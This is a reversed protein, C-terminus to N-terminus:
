RIKKFTEELEVEMWPTGDSDIKPIGNEKIPQPKGIIKFFGEELLVELQPQNNPHQSAVLNTGWDSFDDVDVGNKPKIKLICKVKEGPLRTATKSIFELAVSKNKTTSVFGYLPVETLSGNFLENFESLSYTRGRFVNETYLRSTKRLEELCSIIATFAEQSYEDFILQGSKRMPVNLFNGNATYRHLAAVQIDTSAGLSHILKNTQKLEQIILISERIDSFRRLDNYTNGAKVVRELYDMVEDVQKSTNADNIHEVLKGKNSTYGKLLDKVESKDLPIFPKENVLSYYAPSFIKSNTLIRAGGWAAVILNFKDIWKKSESNAPLGNASLNALAGLVQAGEYLALGMKGVRYAKWVLGPGSAVTLVDVVVASVRLADDNFTQDSAYKLFIAPAITISAHSAAESISALSSRNVITIPTFPSLTFTLPITWHAVHTIPGGMDGPLVETTQYDVVQRSITVSGNDNISVSYKHTGIPASQLLYSDDYFFVSKFQETENEPFYHKVVDGKEKFKICLVKNLKKYDNFNIVQYIKALLSKTNCNNAPATLADFFAITNADSIELNITEFLTVIADHTAWGNVIALIRLLRIRESNSIFNLACVNSMDNVYDTIQAPTTFKNTQSDTNATSNAYGRLEKARQILMAVKDQYLQLPTRTQPTVNNNVSQLHKTLDFDDILRELSYCQSIIKPCATILNAVTIASPIYDRDCIQLEELFRISASSYKSTLEAASLVVSTETLTNFQLPLTEMFTGSGTHVTTPWTVTPSVQVKNAKFIMSGNVVCAYVVVVKNQQQLKQSLTDVLANTCSSGEVYYGDFIERLKELRCRVYNLKNYTFSQLAGDAFFDFKEFTQPDEDNYSFAVKSLKNLLLTFPKGAPTMFTITSDPANCLQWLESINKSDLKLKLVSLFTELETMFKATALENASSGASLEYIKEEFSAKDSLENLLVESLKIKYGVSYNSLYAHFDIDIRRNNVSSENRTITKLVKTGLGKTAELTEEDASINIKLDYKEELAKQKSLFNESASFYAFGKLNVMSRKVAKSGYINLVEKKLKKQKLSILAALSWTEKYEAELVAIERDLKELESDFYYFLETPVEKDEANQSFSRM